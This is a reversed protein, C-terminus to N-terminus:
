GEELEIKKAVLDLKVIRFSRIQGESITEPKSGGSGAGGKWCAQLMSSLSSLDAKAAAATTKASPGQNAPAAVALRCTAQVGEGLEVRAVGGSVEIMRGTVLDGEKHEALYEDLSSPAMQKISLRLQRKAKDVELVQAKVQQGIRLVDQPHNIRKEASIESIHIMGEMCESLQVFAGFKTLSVVPGEVVSGAPFKQPAEAWPDGLAQKLGLSIRREGVNVALIVAEVTEGPRVLDSPKKVKKVWSM